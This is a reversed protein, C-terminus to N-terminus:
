MVDSQDAHAQLEDAVANTDEQGDQEAVGAVVEGAVAQRERSWHHHANTMKPRDGFATGPGAHLRAAPFM